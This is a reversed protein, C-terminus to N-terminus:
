LLTLYVFIWLQRKSDKLFLDNRKPIGITFVGLMLLSKLQNRDKIVFIEINMSMLLHFLQEGLSFPNVKPSPLKAGDEENPL